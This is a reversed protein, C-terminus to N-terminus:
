RRAGSRAGMELNKRVPTAAAVGPVALVAEIDSESITMNASTLSAGQGGKRLMIEAGIGADRRGRDRLMGGVLGVTLFILIAGVAAGIVSAFTRGPHHTLNSTVLNNM